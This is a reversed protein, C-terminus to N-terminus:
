KLQSVSTLNMFNLFAFIAYLYHGDEEKLEGFACKKKRAAPAHRGLNVEWALM